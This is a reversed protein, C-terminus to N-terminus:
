VCFLVDTLIQHKKKVKWVLKFARFIAFFSKFKLLIFYSKEKYFIYISYLQQHFISLQEKSGLGTYQVTLHPLFPIFKVFREM